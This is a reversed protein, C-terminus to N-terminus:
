RPAVRATLHQYRAVWRLYARPRGPGSPEQRVGEFGAKRLERYAAWPGTLTVSSRPRGLRAAVRSAARPPLWHVAPLGTFQDIPHARNPNRTVLWGGPELVRLAEGLAAARADASAIYCLSNNMVVLDFSEDPLDLREARGVEFELDLGYEAAVARGV